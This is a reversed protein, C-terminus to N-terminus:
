KHSKKQTNKDLFTVCNITLLIKRTERSNCLTFAQFFEVVSKVHFWNVYKIQYRWFSRIQCKWLGQIKYKQFNSRQFNALKVLILIWHTIFQSFPLTGRELNVFISKVYFRIPLFIRLNECQSSNVQQTTFCCTKVLSIMLGIPSFCDYDFTLGRIWLGLARM